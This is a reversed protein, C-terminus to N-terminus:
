PRVLRPLDPDSDTFYWSHGDPNTLWGFPEGEVKLEIKGVYYNTGGIGDTEPAGEAWKIADALFVLQDRYLEVSESM